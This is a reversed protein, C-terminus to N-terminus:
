EALQPEYVWREGSPDLKFRYLTEQKETPAILNFSFEIGRVEMERGSLFEIRRAKDSGRPGKDALSIELRPAGTFNGQEDLGISWVEPWRASGYFLRKGKAGKYVALGLGDIGDTQNVVATKTTDIAYLRGNEKARTSGAVSSAYLRLTECDFALGLVGYPNETYNAGEVQPLSIYKSLAGSINDVQYVENQREPPNDLVQIVPAPAVYVNGGKGFEIPALYGAISWTTHTFVRRRGDSTPDILALGKIRRESTSFAANQSFKMDQSFKPMEKCDVAGLSAPNPSNTTAVSNNKAPSSLLLFLVGGIVAVLLGGLLILWLGSGQKSKAVAKAPTQAASQATKPQKTPRNKRKGSM